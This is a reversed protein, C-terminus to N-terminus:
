VGIVNIPTTISKTVDGDDNNNLDQREKSLLM